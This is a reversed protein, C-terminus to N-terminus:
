QTPFIGQLLLLRSWYEQRSLPAQCAATWPIVSNSLVSHGLVLTITNYLDATHVHVLGWQCFQCLEIVSFFLRFPYQFATILLTHRYLNLLLIVHM